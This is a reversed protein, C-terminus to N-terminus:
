GSIQKDQPEPPPLQPQRRLKRLLKPGVEMGGFLVIAAGAIFPDGLGGWTVGVTVAGAGITQLVDIVDLDGAKWARYDDRGMRAVLAAGIIPAIITWTM